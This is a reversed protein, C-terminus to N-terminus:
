QRSLSWIPFVSPNILLVYTAAGFYHKVKWVVQFLNLSELLAIEGVRIMVYIRNGMACLQGTFDTREVQLWNPM